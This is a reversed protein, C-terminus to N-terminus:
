EGKDFKEKLDKRIRDSYKVGNDDYPKTCFEINEYKDAFEKSKNYQPSDPACGTILMMPVKGIDTMIERAIDIGSVGNILVDLIAYDVKNGEKIWEITDIGCSHQTFMEVDYDFSLLMKLSKAVTEEDDVVLIKTEKAM